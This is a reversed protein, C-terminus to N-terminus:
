RQGRNRDHLLPPPSEAMVSMKKRAPRAAIGFSRGSATHMSPALSHCTNQCTIRGCSAGIMIIRTTRRKPLAIATMSSYRIKPSAEVTGRRGIRPGNEHIILRELEAEPTLTVGGRDAHDPRDGHHEDHDEQFPNRPPTVPLSAQLRDHFRRRSGRLRPIPGVQIQLTTMRWAKIRSNM